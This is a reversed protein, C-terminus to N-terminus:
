CPGSAVVLMTLPSSWCRRQAIILLAAPRRATNVPSLVCVTHMVWLKEM